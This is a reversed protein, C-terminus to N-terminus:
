RGAERRLNEFSGMDVEAEWLAKIKTDNPRLLLKNDTMHLSMAM